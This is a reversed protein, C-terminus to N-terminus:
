TIEAASLAAADEVDSHRRTVQYDEPALDLRQGARGARCAHTKGGEDRRETSGM